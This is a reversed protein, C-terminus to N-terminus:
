GHIREKSTTTTLSQRITHFKADPTIHSLLIDRVDRRNTFGPYKVSLKTFEIVSQEDEFGNKIAITSNEIALKEAHDEELDFMLVLNRTCKRVFYRKSYKEMLAVENESFSFSTEKVTRRPNSNISMIWRSSDLINERLLVRRIPGLFQALRNNNLSSIVSALRRPDEIRFRVMDGNLGVNLFLQLQHCVDTIHYASTLLIGKDLISVNEIFWAILPSEPEISVLLPGKMKHEDLATDEWVWRPASAFDIESVESKVHEFLPTNLM